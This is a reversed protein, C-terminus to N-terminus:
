RRGRSVERREGKVRVWERRRESWREMEGDGERKGRRRGGEV